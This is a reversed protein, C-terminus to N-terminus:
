EKIMYLLVKKSSKIRSPNGDHYKWYKPFESLLFHNGDGQTGMHSRAISILKEDQLFENERFADMLEQSMPMQEGRARGGYGFHTVSHAADLVEKPNTKGFDTLM